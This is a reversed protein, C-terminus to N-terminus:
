QGSNYYIVYSVNTTTRIALGRECLMDVNLVVPINATFALAAMPALENTGAANTSNYFYQYANTYWNTVGNQGVFSTVVNSAYSLRTWYSANTYYMGFFPANTNDQNYFQAVGTATSSLMIQTVNVRNTTIQIVNTTGSLAGSPTTITGAFVGAFSNVSALAISAGFAIGLFLKKM